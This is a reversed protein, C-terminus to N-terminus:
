SNKLFGLKVGNIKEIRIKRENIERSVNTEKKQKKTNLESKKRGSSLLKSCLYAILSMVDEKNELTLM